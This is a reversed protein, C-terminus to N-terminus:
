VSPMLNPSFLNSLIVLHQETTLYPSVNLSHQHLVTRLQFSNRRKRIIHLGAVSFLCFSIAIKEEQQPNLANRLLTPQFCCSLDLLYIVSLNYLSLNHAYFNSSDKRESLFFTDINFIFYNYILYVLQVSTLLDYNSIDRSGSVFRGCRGRNM